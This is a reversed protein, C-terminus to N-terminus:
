IGKEILEVVAEIASKVGRWARSAVWTVVALVVGVGAVNGASERLLDHNTRDMIRGAFKQSKLRYIMLEALRTRLLVIM